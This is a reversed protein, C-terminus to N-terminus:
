KLESHMKIDCYTLESSDSGIDYLIMISKKKHKKAVCVM